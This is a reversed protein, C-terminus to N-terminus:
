LADAIFGSFIGILLVALSLSNNRKLDTLDARKELVDHFLHEPLLLM